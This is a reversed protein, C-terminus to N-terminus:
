QYFHKAFKTFGYSYRTAVISEADKEEGLMGLGELTSNIRGAKRRKIHVRKSIVEAMNPSVGKGSIYSVSYKAFFRLVKRMDADVKVGEKRIFKVLEGIDKTKKSTM